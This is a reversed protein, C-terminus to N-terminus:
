KDSPRLKVKAKIRPKRTPSTEARTYRQLLDRATESVSKKRARALKLVRMHTQPDVDHIWFYPQM